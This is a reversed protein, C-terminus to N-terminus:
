CSKNYSCFNRFFWKGYYSSSHKENDWRSKRDYRIKNGSYGLSHQLDTAEAWAKEKNIDILVLDDCIHNMVMDFAVAAGVAGTGVVVVKSRGIAM